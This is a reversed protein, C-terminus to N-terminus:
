KNGEIQCKKLSRRMGRRLGSTFNNEINRLRHTGEINQEPISATQAEKWLISSITVLVNKECRAFTGLLRAILEDTAELTGERIDNGSSGTM